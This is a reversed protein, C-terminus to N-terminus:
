GSSTSPDDFWLAPPDPRLLELAAVVDGDSTISVAVQDHQGGDGDLASLAVSTPGPGADRTRVAVEGGDGRGALVIREFGDEETVVLRRTRVEELLSAALSRLRAECLEMRLQLELFTPGTTAPDRHFSRPRTARHM